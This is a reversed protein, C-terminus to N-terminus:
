SHLINCCIVTICYYDPLEMSCLKKKLLSGNRGCELFEGCKISGLHENGHESCGSVQEYRSWM